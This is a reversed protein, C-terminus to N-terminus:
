YFILPYVKYVRYGKDTLIFEITIEGDCYMDGYNDLMKATYKHHNDYFDDPFDEILHEYDYAIGCYKFKVSYHYPAIKEVSALCPFDLEDWGLGTYKIIFGEDTSWLGKDSAEWQYPSPVRWETPLILDGYFVENVITNADEYSIYINGVDLFDLIDENGFIMRSDFNHMYNIGSYHYFFYGLINYDIKEANYSTVNGVKYALINLDEYDRYVDDASPSEDIATANKHKDIDDYLKRSAIDDPFNHTIISAIDSAQEYDKEEIYGNAKEILENIYGDVVTKIESNNPDIELAEVFEALAKEYNMEDYYRTGLNLAKMAKRSPSNATVYIVIGIAIISIIVISAGIILRKGQEKKITNKIEKM